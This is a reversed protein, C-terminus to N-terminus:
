MARMSIRCKKVHGSISKDANKIILMCNYANEYMNRYLVAEPTAM